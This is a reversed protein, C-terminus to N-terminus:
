LIGLKVNDSIRNSKRTSAIAQFVQNITEQDPYRSELESIESLIKEPTKNVNKGKKGKYHPGEAAKTRNEGPNESHTEYNKFDQYRDYNLITIILGRTTKATTIMSTKTLAEYCNRINDRSPRVPRAGVMHTMAERMADISTLIQGRKLKPHDKFNANLLMWLWLKVYLPPKDMVWSELLGRAM